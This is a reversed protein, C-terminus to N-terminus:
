RQPPFDHLLRSRALQEREEKPLKEATELLADHLKVQGALTVNRLDELASALAQRDFPERSLARAVAERARVVEDRQARMTPRYPGFARLAKGPGRQEPGRQEPQMMPPRGSFPRTKVTRAVSFGLLFLNLGVSVALAWILKKTLSNM